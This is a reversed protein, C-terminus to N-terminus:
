EGSSSAPPSSTTVLVSTSSMILKTQATRYVTSTGSKMVRHPADSCGALWGAPRTAYSFGPGDHAACVHRRLRCVSQLQTDAQGDAGSRRVMRATQAAPELCSQALLPGVNEFAAPTHHQHGCQDVEDGGKDAHRSQRRQLEELQHPNDAEELRNRVTLVLQQELTSTQQQM